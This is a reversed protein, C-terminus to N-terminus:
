SGGHQGRVVLAVPAAAGAAGTGGAGKSEEMVIRKGINFSLRTALCAKKTFCSFRWSFRIFYVTRRSKSNKAPISTTLGRKCSFAGTRNM